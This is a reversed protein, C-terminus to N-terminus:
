RKARLIIHRSTWPIEKESILSKLKDVVSEKTESINLENLVDGFEGNFWTDINEKKIVRLETTDIIESEIDTFGLDKVHNIVTKSDWNTLPNSEKNFIVGEINLLIEKLERNNVINSLRTSERPIVQTLVLNGDKKIYKLLKSILDKNKDFYTLRNKLILVEFSVETDPITGLFIEPRDISDLTTTYYNLVEYSERGEVGSLVYGEPTRKFAEFTLSGGDDGLILFNFHRSIKLNDFLRNKIKTLNENLDGQTRKIWKDREKNNPSFTLVEQPAQEMMVSIQQERKDLVSKQVSEEWGQDSPKYFIRGRLADPLYAQSVWHDKFAHPYKYGEGHGFSHKDRSGDKLHNPVETKEEEVAKLADFYAMTTNSKKTTALYLTAQTLFFAGEPMGIRDFATACSTVVQIANPDALGIDESASILLRRLIYNPSEGARLMRALWYLAADPDSGRLSKIFASITDYHYDGEKDYLVAKQQISEQATDTSIYIEDDIPPPFNDPTTEIALELANLLSRADGASKEVLLELAGTEFKISWKGYGRERDEIAAKAVEFLDSDELPRLQFVRSRSVLASNVEFYPNETTAGVLVFTGNEVWPLLADQQSKNWRHVEDVFLITRKGYLKRNESAEDIAERIQKVGSLVANISIFLSKTTGAIVRALTTKGTGPPGYFILSSLQDGKIARRLLRGKGVIHHQGFYENLDRPRMRAALPETHLDNVSDFLDM